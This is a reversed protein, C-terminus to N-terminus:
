ETGDDGSGDRGGDGDRLRWESNDDVAIVELKEVWSTVPEGINTLVLWSSLLITTGLSCVGRM